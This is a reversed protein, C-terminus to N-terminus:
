SGTRPSPDVEHEPPEADQSRSSRPRSRRSDVPAAASRDRRSRRAALLGGGTLIILAAASILFPWSGPTTGFTGLAVFSVTGPVIGVATGIAYDRTRVSTLGAAYNIATCPLVPVLRVAIVAPIGRQNLLADVRAVRSGTIREVADRGLVRSLTFAAAAGLLAALLVVVVGLVLGFLVGALAAFVNKPLPLLTVLAYLLGFLAPGAPGAGAVQARLQQADPLGVIVATVGAAALIAVLALLRAWAARGSPRPPEAGGSNPQRATASEARPRPQRV